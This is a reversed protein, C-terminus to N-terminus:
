FAKGAAAAAAAPEDGEMFSVRKPKKPQQPMPKPQMQMQIREECIIDGIIIEKGISKSSSSLSSSCYTSYDRYSYYLNNSNNENNNNTVDTTTKTTTTTTTDFERFKAPDSFKLASEVHHKPVVVVHHVLHHVSHLLQPLNEPWSVVPGCCDWMSVSSTNFSASSCTSSASSIHSGGLNQIQIQNAIIIQHAVKDTPQIDTEGSQSQMAYNFLDVTRFDVDFDYKREGDVEFFYDYDVGSRM